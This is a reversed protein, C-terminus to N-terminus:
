REKKEKEALLGGGGGGYVDISNACGRHEHLYSTQGFTPCGRELSNHWNWYM